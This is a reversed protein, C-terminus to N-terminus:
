LCPAASFLDAHVHTELIWQLQLGRARSFQLLVDASAHQTRGSAPDFDLVSDIIACARSGPDCVVHSVTNTAPDFFSAVEHRLAAGRSADRVIDIDQALAPEAHPEPMLVGAQQYIFLF